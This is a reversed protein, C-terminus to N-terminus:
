PRVEISSRLPLRRSSTGVLVGYRGRPFVWHGKFIALEKRPVRMRVRRSEGPALTVKRYAKLQKPPEGASPPFELYLQVVETGARRDTNTVQASARLARRGADVHLGHLRFRSYSLGYGFPFLPRQGVQDYYRYGVFIGEGYSEDGNIGPYRDPRTPPAPGQVDSAPYTM